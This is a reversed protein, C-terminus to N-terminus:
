RPCKTWTTLDFREGATLELFPFGDHSQGDTILARGVGLISAVNGQVLVATREDLGLGLLEPRRAIVEALDHERGRTEIHQDIAVNHLYGFGEEHGPSMMIHNGEPAGRVLYSGQITAGASIGAIVGGRDLVGRIERETRTGAYADVLRWQRGGCFWVGTASRLPEVFSERDAEERDRTHLIRFHRRLIAPLNGYSLAVNLQRDEAATPITAWISNSGGGLADALRRISRVIRGGGIM